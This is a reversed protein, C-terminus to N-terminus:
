GEFCQCIGVGERPSVCRSICGSRGDVGVKRRRCRSTRGAQSSRRRRGGVADVGWAAGQNEIEATDGEGAAEEGEEDAGGDGEGVLVAVAAPGLAGFAVVLLDGAWPGDLGVRQAEETRTSRARPQVGQVRSCSARAGFKRTCGRM